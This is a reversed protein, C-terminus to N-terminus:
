ADAPPTRYPGDASAALTDDHQLPQSAPLLQGEEAGKV